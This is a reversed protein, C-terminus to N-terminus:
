GHPKANLGIMLEFHKFFNKTKCFIINLNSKLNGPQNYAAQTHPQNPNAPSPTQSPQQQSVHPHPHAHQMYQITQTQPGGSEHHHHYPGGAMHPPPPPAAAVMRVMQPGYTPQGSYPIHFPPQLPAPAMLPQGTAAAVQLQSAVDPGRQMM